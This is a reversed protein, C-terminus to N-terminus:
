EAMGTLVGMVVNSGERELLFRSGEFASIEQELEIQLEGTDGPALPKSSSVVGEQVQGNIWLRVRSGRHLEVSHGTSEAVTLVYVFTSAKRGSIAKAAHKQRVPVSGLASLVGDLGVGNTHMNPISRIREDHFVRAHDGDMSYKNMLERMELEELELLEAADANGELGAMNIFMISLSPVGAQRAIQIHERNVPMPGQTADVLIVAHGAHQAFSAVAAAGAGAPAAAVTREGAVCPDPCKDLVRSKSGLFAIDVNGPQASTSTASALLLVAACFPIVRKFNM